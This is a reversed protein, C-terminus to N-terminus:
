EFVVEFGDPRERELFGEVGEPLVVTRAPRTPIELFPAGAGHAAFEGGHLFEDACQAVM